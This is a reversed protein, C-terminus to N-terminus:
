FSVLGRRVAPMVRSHTFPEKMLWRWLQPVRSSQIIFVPLSSHHHKMDVAAARGKNGLEM